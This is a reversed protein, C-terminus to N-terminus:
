FGPAIGSVPNCGHPHRRPTQSRRAALISIIGMLFIGLISWSFHRIHREYYTDIELYRDYVWDRTDGDASEIISINCYHAHIINGSDVSYRILAKSDNSLALNFRSELTFIGSGPGIYPKLIKVSALYKDPNKNFRDVDMVQFLAMNDFQFFFIMAPSPFYCITASADQVYVALVVILALVLALLLM